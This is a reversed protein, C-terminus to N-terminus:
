EGFIFIDIITEKSFWSKCKKKNKAKTLLCMFICQLPIYVFLSLFVNM